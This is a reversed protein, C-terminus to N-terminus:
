AELAKIERIRSGLDKIEVALKERKQNIVGEEFNDDIYELDKAYGKYKKLLEAKSTEYTKLNEVELKQEDTLTRM